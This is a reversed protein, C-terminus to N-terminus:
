GVTAVSPKLGSTKSVLESLEMGTNLVPNKAKFDALYVAYERYQSTKKYKALEINYREKAASAQSEYPEKEDPILVQWKEGVRKAIETFSLNESRLDERIEVCGMLRSHHCVGKLMM